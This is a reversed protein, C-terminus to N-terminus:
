QNSVKIYYMILYRYILKQHSKRIHWFTVHLGVIGGGGTSIDLEARAIL